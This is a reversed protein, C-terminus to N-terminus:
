RKPESALLDGFGALLSYRNEWTTYMIGAAGRTQDLAEIWGKPNDLTDGDYYAGAATTFGLKSFFELSARRKEFYWCMIRMERPIHEWSGTYDGDVLYYNGHANHNPDLMDSWTWVEAKPNLARLMEFQKTFCDGLIEGMTMHRQKCALDSGGARIEDMSLLYKDPALLDHLRRAQERWIQYLKPESMCATVQGNHISMGHYYDVALRQGEQIRSGPLLRIPLGDREFRFDLVPDRVFAYDRGEEFVTAGAADRVTLPTGDRRLVNTLAIEELALDDLWFRGSKGGWVGAYIRVRQANASNFGATLKRWDATAPVQFSLPALSRGNLDLVQIQFRGAPTLDETKLWCTFRYLRHPRVAVEQMLRGHGYQNASFNEMRLSVKGHHAVAPDILSITGPQEQLQFGRLRDGTFEELDGNVLQLAPDPELRAEGHHAVFPAGTVAIGEALNKDFSLVGGGYGASFIQPILELHYEACIAKVKRVRELYDAPQKELRDLGASLVLGNLNHAAATRAIERIEDLERDSRLNRVVYVWRYAYPQAAFAAGAALLLASCRAATSRSM